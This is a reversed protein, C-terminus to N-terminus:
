KLEFERRLKDITVAFTGKETIRKNELGIFSLDEPTLTFLVAKSEGPALLVKSFKKLEKVPPSISRYLDSVYLQVVEKGAVTGSNKVTVSVGISGDM